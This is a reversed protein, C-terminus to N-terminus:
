KRMHADSQRLSNFANIQFSLFRGFWPGCKVPQSRFLMASIKCVINGFENEEIVFDINKYSIRQHNNELTWNGVDMTLRIAHCLFRCAIVPFLTVWSVDRMIADNPWLSNFIKESVRHFLTVSECIYSIKKHWTRHCTRNQQHEPYFIYQSYQM